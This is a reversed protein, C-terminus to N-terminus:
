LLNQLLRPLDRAGHVIRVIRPPNRGANYAILYRYGPLVVFRYAANPTLDPRVTGIM